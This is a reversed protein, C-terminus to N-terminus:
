HRTGIGGNQRVKRKSRKRFLHWQKAKMKKVLGDIINDKLVMSGVSIGIVMGSGYGMLVIKWDFGNVHEEDGEQQSTSSSPQHAMDENCSKSIPFGCLGSNGNYSDETFTDFQRSRPIRGELQNMSLNLFGLQNLNSALQWPIKGTLKNSSVDLGELNILNGLSPPINGTLKNHSLNLSKLSKLKGISKPIKGTFNNRSLDIIVFMNHIKALEFIFGKIAVTMSDQYTNYDVSVEMYNFYSSSADEMRLLKGFFIEPLLGVFENGSLDFIRLKPFPLKLKPNRISGQFRNSRLILVQLMPLSELWQPFSGDIKNNGIDLLELNKCNLLSKPLTGGLQNENLNLVSLPNGKAFSPPITGHFKNM